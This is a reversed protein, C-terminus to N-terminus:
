PTEFLARVAPPALIAFTIQANSGGVFTASQAQITFGGGADSTTGLMSLFSTPIAGTGHSAAFACSLQVSTGKSLTVLIQEDVYTGGGWSVTLDQSEDIVYLDPSVPVPASVLLDGPAQGSAGSFAAVDAGSATVNFVDGAAFLQSSQAPSGYSGGATTQFTLDVPASLKGGSITVTGAQVGVPSPVTGADSCDIFSCAGSTTVACGPAPNTAAAYFQASIFGSYGADSLSENVVISGSYQASTSTENATSADSADGNADTDGADSIDNSSSSSCGYFALSSLASAAFFGIAFRRMKKM